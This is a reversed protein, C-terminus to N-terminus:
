YHVAVFTGTDAAYPGRQAQALVAEDAEALVM